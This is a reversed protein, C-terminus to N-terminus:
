SDSEQRGRSFGTLSEPQVINCSEDEPDFVLVLEGDDLFRLVTAAKTAADTHETGDRTVYEEIVGALADPSLKRHPIIVSGMRRDEM